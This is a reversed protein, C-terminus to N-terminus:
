GPGALIRPPRAEFRAPVVRGAVASLVMGLWWGAMLGAIAGGDGGAAIAGAFGGAVAAGLPVGLVVVAVRVQHEPIISLSVAAGEALGEPNDVEVQEPCGAPGRARCAADGPQGPCDACGQPARLVVATTEDARLLTGSTM